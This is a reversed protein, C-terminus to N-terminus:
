RTRPRAASKPKLDPHASWEAAFRRRARPLAEDFNTANPDLAWQFGLGIMFSTFDSGAADPDLDKRVSGDQQGRRLATAISTSYATIGERTRDALESLAATTEYSLVLSARLLAPNERAYRDYLDLHVLAQELGTETNEDDPPVWAALGTELLAVLFKEKSGYRASVMARSYGARESIEALSTTAFGREGILEVAAELLKRSSEESRDKQSRRGPRPSPTM